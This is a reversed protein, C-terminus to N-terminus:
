KSQRKKNMLDIFADESGSVYEAILGAADACSKVLTYALLDYGNVKDGTEFGAIVADSYRYRLYIDESVTLTLDQLNDCNEVFLVAVMIKTLSAPFMKEDANKSYVVTDTDNNYLIAAKAKTEFTPKYAYAPVSAACVVFVLVFFCSKIIKKM